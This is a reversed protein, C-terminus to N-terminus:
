LFLNIFYLILQSKPCNMKCGQIFFNLLCLNGNEQFNDARGAFDGDEHYVGTILELFHVAGSIIAM